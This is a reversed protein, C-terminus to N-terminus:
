QGLALGAEKKSPFQEFTVVLKNCYLIVTSCIPRKTVQTPLFREPNWRPQHQTPTYPSEFSRVHHYASSIFSPSYFLVSRHAQLEQYRLTGASSSRDTLNDHAATHPTQGWRVASQGARRRRVAAHAAGRSESLQVWQRGSDATDRRSATIHVPDANQWNNSVNSYFLITM